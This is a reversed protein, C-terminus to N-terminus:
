HVRLKLSTQTNINHDRDGKEAKRGVQGGEQRGAQRGAQRGVTRDTQMGTESDAQSAGVNTGLYRRQNCIKSPSSAAHAKSSQALRLAFRLAIM